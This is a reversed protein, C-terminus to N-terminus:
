KELELTDIEVGTRSIAELTLTSCTVTLKSAGFDANYRLESEDLITSWGSLSAAGGIGVVVYPLGDVELREYNHAHGSMVLDAGMGKFDWRLDTVNSYANSSSSYPPHHLCVIKWPATSAKLVRRLWAEQASGVTIGDAQQNVGSSNLGSDVIFFEVMGRRVNYYGRSAEGTDRNFPPLNFFDKEIALRGAPDRDHNGITAYFNQETAVEVGATGRYPFLFTRYLAGTYADLNAATNTSGYWNDGLSVMFEVGWSDILTAVDTSPVGGDGFDGVMAFLQSEDEVTESCEAPACYDTYPQNYEREREKAEMERDRRWCVEAYADKFQQHSLMSDQPNREYLMYHKWLVWHLALEQLEIGEDEDEESKGSLPMLDENAWKRKVGDFEVVLRESSEIRNGVYIRNNHLVFRGWNYRYGKDTSENAYRFGHPLPPLGTTTPDTYATRVAQLWNTFDDYDRMQDYYIPCCAAELPLTYIRQIRGRPQEVVTAGCHFYTSCFPFVSTNGTQYFKCHEQIYILCGVLDDRHQKVLNEPEGDPFAADM